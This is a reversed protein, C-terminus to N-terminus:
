ERKGLSFSFDDNLYNYVSFYAIGIVCSIILPIYAYTVVAYLNHGAMRAQSAGHMGFITYLLSLVIGGGIVAINGWKGKSRRIVFFLLAGLTLVSLIIHWIVGARLTPLVEDLLRYHERALVGFGSASVQAEAGFDTLHDTMSCVLTFLPVLFNFLASAFTAATLIKGKTIKISM